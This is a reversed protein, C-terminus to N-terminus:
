TVLSIHRNQSYFVNTTAITYNKILLFYIAEQKAIYKWTIRVNSLLFDISRFCLLNNTILMRSTSIFLISELFRFQSSILTKSYFFICHNFSIDYVNIIIYSILNLLNIIMELKRKIYNWTIEEYSLLFDISRFNFLNNTILM